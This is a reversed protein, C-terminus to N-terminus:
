ALAEQAFRSRYFPPIGTAEFWERPAEIGRPLPQGVTVAQHLDRPDAHVILRGECTDSALARLRDVPAIWIVRLWPAGTTQGAPACLIAFPTPTPM